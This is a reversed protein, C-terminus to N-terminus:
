YWTLNVLTVEVDQERSVELDHFGHIGCDSSTEGACVQVLIEHRASCIDGLGARLVPVIWQQAPVLVSTDHDCHLYGKGREACVALIYYPYKSYSCLSM